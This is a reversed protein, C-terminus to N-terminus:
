QTAPEGGALLPWTKGLTFALKKLDSADMHPTQWAKAAVGLLRPLLMPWIQHDQTTFESWFAGQVGIINQALEPEDLPVPEWAITDALSLYTAWNAGWDDLDSTAAMDLYVHQAPTMVVDYGARAAALGPGQATWSFLIANHGIGGNSGQAAEEWAAPRQGNACVLGALRSMTWGQLDKSTKLGEADMLARAAPSGMWADKPLEDCGLHLHGFPFLDGTECALASLVEWTKPMAPNMVNAPYGQISIETGTDAPDRVDPFVQALAFAHAPVEIEPLVEINLSKARAIVDEADQKSYSGGSEPGGSFLGPLMHGEGALATKQWLEPYCDVQLRFAEDDAFHWHFRNLKLLAMVDLLNHISAPQYFHRACDLHQGRWEFRPEDKITGCPLAGAHTHLLTLLTIAGYFRGGYSNAFLTVGTNTIELRYADPPLEEHFLTVALGKDVLFDGLNQRQAIANVAIFADDTAYFGTTTITDAGATWESPQPVLRLGDYLGVDAVPQSNVGSVVPPLVTCGSPERLYPGLPMWARNAPEFDLYALRLVHPTNAALDPLLVETYGATGGLREGGARVTMPVMSGFCLVPADFDRDTTITCHLEDGEIICGFQM